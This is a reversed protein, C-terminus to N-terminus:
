QHGDCRGNQCTKQCPIRMVSNVVCTVVHPGRHLLLSSLQPSRRWVMSCIQQRSYCRSNQCSKQCTVHIVNISCLKSIICLNSQPTGTSFNRVVGGFLPVSKYAVVIQRTPLEKKLFDSRHNTKNTHTVHSLWTHRSEINRSMVRQQPMYANILENMNHCSENMHSTVWKHTVHSMWIYCSENIQPTVWKQKVHSM